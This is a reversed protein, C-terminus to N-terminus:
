LSLALGIPYKDRIYGRSTRSALKASDFQVGGHEILQNSFDLDGDVVPSVLYLYYEKADGTAFEIPQHRVVSKVGALGAALAFCVAAFLAYLKNRGAPSDLARLLMVRSASPVHITPLPYHIHPTSVAAFTGCM